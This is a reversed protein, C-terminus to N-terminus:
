KVCAKHEQRVEVVTRLLNREDNWFQLLCRGHSEGVSYRARRLDFIMRGDELLAAAPYQALYEEVSQALQGASATELVDM